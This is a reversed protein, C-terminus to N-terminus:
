HYYHINIVFSHIFILHCKGLVEKGKNDSCRDAGFLEIIEQWERKKINLDSYSERLMDWTAPRKEIEEIFKVNDIDM